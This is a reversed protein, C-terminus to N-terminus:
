SILIKALAADLDYREVSLYLSGDIRPETKKAQRIQNKTDM